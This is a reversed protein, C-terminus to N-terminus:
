EKEEELGQEDFEDLRWIVEAQMMFSSKRGRGELDELLLVAEDFLLEGGLLVVVFGVRGVRWGGREM